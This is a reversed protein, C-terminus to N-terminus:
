LFMALQRESEIWLAEALRDNRAERSPKAERCEEFYKGSVGAVEASAALHVSTRAGQEVPAGEIGWGARLLKTDIVGPHLANVTVGTGNQRRALSRTFVINALKSAAYAANGDYRRAFTLDALDIHGSRHVTSSVVVVRGQTALLAPLVRRTLLFQAFYNVAMTMELGQDTICRRAEYVGANQILVDLRPALGLVRHALGVVETMSALDGWVPVVTAALGEVALEAACRQAKAPDRGHVLVQWGEQVLRRATERGIGDTAGTVLVTKM